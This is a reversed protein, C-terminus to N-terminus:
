VSFVISSEQEVAEKWFLMMERHKKRFYKSWEEYNEPDELMDKNKEIHKRILEDTLRREQLKGYIYKVGKPKLIGDDLWRKKDLEEIEAWYSMGIVWWINTPNYSDRFYRGTKEIWLDAGM